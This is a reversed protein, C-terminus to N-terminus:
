TSLLSPTLPQSHMTSDLLQKIVALKARWIRQRECIRDEFPFDQINGQRYFKTNVPQCHLTGSVLKKRQAFSGHKDCQRQAWLPGNIIFHVSPVQLNYCPV